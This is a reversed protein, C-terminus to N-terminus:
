HIPWAALVPTLRCFLVETTSLSMSAPGSVFWWGFSLFVTLRSMGSCLEVDDWEHMHRFFWQLDMGACIM